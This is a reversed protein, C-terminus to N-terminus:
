RALLPATKCLFWVTFGLFFLAVSYYMLINAANGLANAKGTNASPKLLPQTKGLAQLFLYGAMATFVGPLNGYGFYVSIALFACPTGFILAASTLIRVLVARRRTAEDPEDIKWRASFRRFLVDGAIGLLFGGFFSLIPAGTEIGGLSPPGDIGAGAAFTTVYKLVSALTAVLLGTATMASVVALASNSMLSKFVAKSM